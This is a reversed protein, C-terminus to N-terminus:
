NKIKLKYKKLESELDEYEIECPIIEVGTNDMIGYFDYNKSVFYYYGDYYLIDCYKGNTIDINNKTIVSVDNYNNKSAYALENNFDSIVDYDFPIIVKGTKDIVGFKNYKKMVMVDNVFKYHYNDYCIDTIEEGKSNIVGAKNGDVVVAYGDSFNYVSDYKCECIQENKNNIFGFKNNSEIKAYGNKFKLKQKKM